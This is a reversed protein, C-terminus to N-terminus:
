FKIMLTIRQNLNVIFNQFKMLNSNLSGHAFFFEKLNICIKMMKLM